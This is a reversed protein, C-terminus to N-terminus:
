PTVDACVVHAYVYVTADSYNLVYVYWSDDGSPSSRQVHVNPSGSAVYYGGGTALDGPDCYAAIGGSAGPAIPRSPHSRKYFGLVGQPGQPGAPGAEGRPGAPGAEGQPGPPGDPGTEGQPGQPGGPGEPGIPGQPGAPGMPGPDGQPGAPGQPGLDGRVGRMNWRLPVWNKKCTDSPGVIKVEGSSKNVCAHILDSDSGYVVAWTASGLLLVALLIGALALRNRRKV